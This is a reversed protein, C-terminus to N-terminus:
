FYVARLRRRVLLLIYLGAVIVLTIIIQPTEFFPLEFSPRGCPIIGTRSQCASAPCSSSGLFTAQVDLTYYGNICASTNVASEQCSAVFAGTGSDIWTRNERCAGQSASGSWFCRTTSTLGSCALADGTRTANECLSLTRYQACGPLDVIGPQQAPIYCGRSGCAYNTPCCTRGDAGQCATPSFRANGTGNTTGVIRIISGDETIETFNLGNDICQGLTINRTVKQQLALGASTNTYNLILSISRDQRRTSYEDSGFRTSNSVRGLGTDIQEVTGKGYRIWSFLTATLPQPTNLVPLNTTCPPPNQVSDPCMGALCTITGTCDSTNYNSDVVYSKSANYFVNVSSLGGVPIVENFRPEHIFALIGPSALVLLNIQRETYVGYGNWAKLLITKQGPSTFNHMFTKQSTTYKDEIITWELSLLYEESADELTYNIEVPIGKLYLERDSIGTISINLADSPPLSIKSVELQTSQLAAIGRKAIFYFELSEAGADQSLARQIATDSIRWSAKAIGNQVDAQLSETGALIIDDLACPPNGNLCDQEYVEFMIKGSTWSTNAELIITQNVASASISIGQRNKWSISNFAGSEGVSCCIKFPYASVNGAGVHANAESSLSLMAYEGPLCAEARRLTCSLDGYCVPVSYTTRSANEVHANKEQVLNMIRNSGTCNWPSTGQYLSGFVEDYCIQMTAGTDNYTANFLVAHSNSASYLSLITQNVSSCQVPLATTQSLMLVLAPLLLFLTIQSRLSVTCQRGEKTDSM